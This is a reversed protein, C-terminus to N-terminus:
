MRYCAMHRKHKFLEFIYTSPSLYLINQFPHDEIYKLAIFSKGTGTPQVICTRKTEQFAKLVAQYIKQNHPFLKIKSEM